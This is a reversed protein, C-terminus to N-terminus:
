FFWDQIILRSTVPIDYKMDSRHEVTNTDESSSLFNHCIINHNSEPPSPKNYEGFPLCITVAKDTRGETQGFDYRELGKVLNSLVAYILEKPYQVLISKRSKWNSVREHFFLSLAFNWNKSIDWETKALIEHFKMTINHILLTLM